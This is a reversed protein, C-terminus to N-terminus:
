VSDVGDGQLLCNRKHEVKRTLTQKNIDNRVKRKLSVFLSCPVTNAIAAHRALVPSNFFSPQLDLHLQKRERSARVM